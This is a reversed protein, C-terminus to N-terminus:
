LFFICAHSFKSLQGANTPKILVAKGCVKAFLRHLDAKPIKDIFITDASILRKM